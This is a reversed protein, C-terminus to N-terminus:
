IFFFSMRKLHGKRYFHRHCHSVTASSAVVSGKPKCLLAKLSSSEWGGPQRWSVFLLCFPSCRGLPRFPLAACASALWYIIECAKRKWNETKVKRTARKAREARKPRWTYVVFFPCGKLHGKWLFHRHGVRGCVSRLSTRQHRCCYTARLMSPTWARAPQPYVAGGPSSPTSVQIHLFVLGKPVRRKM